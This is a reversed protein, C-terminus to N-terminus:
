TQFRAALAALRGALTGDYVDSGVQVRLGGLLEPKELFTFHLGTGYRRSLSAQVDQRLEAPLPFASEVRAAHRAFDLEVLRKFHHLIGAYGRPRTSVLREVVLRVRAEDLRGDVRCLTFLEKAIRRAQKSIRM